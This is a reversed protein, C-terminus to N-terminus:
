IKVQTGQKLQQEGKVKLKFRHKENFFLLRLFVWPPTVTM